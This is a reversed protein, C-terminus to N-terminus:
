RLFFYWAAFAAAACLMFIFLGALAIMWGSSTPEPEIASSGQPSSVSLPQTRPPTEMGLSSAINATQNSTNSAAEVFDPIGNQNADLKGMAQSLKARVEPPLEDMGNYEKGDAVIKTTTVVNSVLNDFADPMGDQNKDEFLSNVNELMDLTGNNNKDLKSMAALYKQRVDEPMEDVSNYVKGDIVIRKQNM